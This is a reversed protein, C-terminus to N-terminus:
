TGQRLPDPPWRRRDGGRRRDDRVARVPLGAIDPVLWRQLLDRGRLAALDAPLRLVARHHRQRDRDGPEDHPRCPQDTGGDPHARDENSKRETTRQRTPTTM